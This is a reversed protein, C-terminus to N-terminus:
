NIENELWTVIKMETKEDQLLDSFVYHSSLATNDVITNYFYNDYIYSFTVYVLNNTYLSGELKGRLETVGDVFMLGRVKATPLISVREQITNQYKNLFVVMGDVISNQMIYIPKSQFHLKYPIEVDKIVAVTSPYELQVNREVIISDSAFIQLVGRFNHKVRVVSSYICINSLKSSSDILVTSDCLLKINGNLQFSSIDISEESHIVLTKNSFSNTIIPTTLDEFDVLSDNDQLQNNLYNRNHQILQENIAPLKYDSFESTGTIPKDGIFSEGNIYARKLGGRPMLCNGIVQTRGCFAYPKHMDTLYLAIRDEPKHYSGSLCAKTSKSSKFTSTSALYRFLGWYQKKLTTKISPDDYLDLDTQPLELSQDSLLLNIGSETNLVLKEYQVSDIFTKKSLFSTSLLVTLLISVIVVIFLAYLMAGAKYRRSLFQRM